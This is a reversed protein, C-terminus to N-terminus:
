RRLRAELMDHATRYVTQVWLAAIRPIMDSATPYVVYGKPKFNWFQAATRRRVRHKGGRRNRRSYENFENRRAGFETERTFNDARDSGAVLRAGRDTVYVTSPKVLRDHFVPAPAREALGKRWEPAIISKSYARTTKAVERPMTAMVEIAAALSPSRRADLQV